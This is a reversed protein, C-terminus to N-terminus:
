KINQLYNNTIENLSSVLNKTPYKKNKDEVLGICKMKATKAAKMGSIGDEIVLCEQPKIKIKKAALLFIEPDPKGNSVMDGTIIADFFKIVELKKLAIRVYKTNSSSAVALPIKEKKLRKILNIAGKIPSVSLSTLKEMRTNKEKILKELDYKQPQKKLLEDFFDKTRVGAYKKTLENPTIKVGFRGLLESEIKSHFKETDSIVGDMDFIVAKIM